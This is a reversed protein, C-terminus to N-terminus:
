GCLARLPNGDPLLIPERARVPPHRSITRKRDVQYLGMPLTEPISRFVEPNDLEAVPLSWSSDDTLDAVIKTWM